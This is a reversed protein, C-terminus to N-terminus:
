LPSDGQRNNGALNRRQQRLEQQLRFVALGAFAWVIALGLYSLPQSYQILAASLSGGIVSPLFSLIFLWTGCCGLPVLSFFSLFSSFATGGSGPGIIAKRKDIRCGLGKSYSSLFIQTGVGGAVGFIILSNLAFATTIATAAPLNPTTMVVILLYILVTIGGVTIAKALSNRANYSFTTVIASSPM